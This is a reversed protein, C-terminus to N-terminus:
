VSCCRTTSTEVLSLIDPQTTILGKFTIPSEQLSGNTERPGIDRLQRSKGIKGRCTWRRTTFPPTSFSPLPLM